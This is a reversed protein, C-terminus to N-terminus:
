GEMIIHNIMEDYSKEDTVMGHINSIQEGYELKREEEHLRQTRYKPYVEKNLHHYMLAGFRDAIIEEGVVHDLFKDFDKEAFFSVLKKKGMKTIRLLHAYEHLIVFYILQNDELKLWEIDFVTKGFTAFGLVGRLKGGIFEYQSGELLDVLSKFNLESNEDRELLLEKLNETIM